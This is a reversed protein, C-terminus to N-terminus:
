LGDFHPQVQRRVLRAVIGCVLAQAVGGALQLKREVRLVDLDQGAM